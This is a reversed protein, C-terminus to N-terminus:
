VVVLQAIYGGARGIQACGQSGRDVNLEWTEALSHVLEFLNSVFILDLDSADVSLV